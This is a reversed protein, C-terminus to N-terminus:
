VQGGIQQLVQPLASPNSQVMQRLMNFQPHNRLAEIGAPAAGDTTAAPSPTSNVAPATEPIGNMLYEVARDPNNFAARLAAQVQEEPFGM